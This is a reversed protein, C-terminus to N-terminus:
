ISIRSRTIVTGRQGNSRASRTPSRRRRRMLRLRNTLQRTGNLIYYGDDSLTLPYTQGDIVAQVTKVSM